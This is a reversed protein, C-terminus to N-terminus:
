PNSRRLIIKAIFIHFDLGLFLPCQIREQCERLGKRYGM